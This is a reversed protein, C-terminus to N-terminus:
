FRSEVDEEGGLNLWRAGGGIIVKRRGCECAKGPYDFVNGQVGGVGFIHWLVRRDQM